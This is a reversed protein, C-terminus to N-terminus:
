IVIRTRLDAIQKPTYGLHKAQPDAFVENMKYIPRRAVGGEEPYSQAHAAPALAAGPVAVGISVVLRTM